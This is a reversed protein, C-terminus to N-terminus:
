SGAGPTRFTAERVVERQNSQIRFQLAHQRDANQTTRVVVPVTRSENPGLVIEPVILEGDLGELTVTFVDPTADSDRNVLQLLYTNRVSGDADVTYLNGPSRSVHAEIPSHTVIIGLITAALGTLLSAYLITRPRIIRSKRGEVEAITAHQVLAPHGLKGMVGECADICRGCAICELQFGQRIDIGQPCAAVCKKCDICSGHEKAAKKDGRPEGRKLNYDVVLSVDDTLEGQFRAYPCAYICLQERFWAFDIFGILTFFGVISYYGSGAQFSWLDRAGAFWSVFSMAAAFAVVAFAAWKGFKQAIHAKFPERDVQMRQGRDGEFFAEIPRILEELFVTQPCLYGCWLRGFLSTFFFLTFAAFFGLLAMLFGDSATFVAGLAFVRRAPVDIQILPQGHYSLWPVVVLWALLLRGSWRHLRQFRGTVKQAYVWKRSGSFGLM